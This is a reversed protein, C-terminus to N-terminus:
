LLSDKIRLKVMQKVIQIAGWNSQGRGAATSYDTYVATIPIETISLDANKARWIMESCFAYRNSHYYVNMLAKKNFGRLGSQSDKINSGYMVTTIFSLGKNGVRKILPMGDKDWLRNGIVIDAKGKAISEYVAVVDKPLHQGDADLTVAIDYKQLLAYSLGTRTAAGAGMNIVHDLVVTNKQAKAFKVTNDKSGDSVVVIKYTDVHHKALEKQLSSVVDAIAGEENYAPIVFAVSQSNAM